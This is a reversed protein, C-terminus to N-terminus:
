ALRGEQIENESDAVREAAERLALEVKNKNAEILVKLLHDATVAAPNPDHIQYNLKRERVAADGEEGQYGKDMDIFILKLITGWFHNLKSRPKGTKQEGKCFM